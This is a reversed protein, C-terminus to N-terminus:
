IESASLDGLTLTTPAVAVNFEAISPSYVSEGGYQAWPRV